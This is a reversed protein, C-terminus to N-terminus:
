SGPWLTRRRPQPDTPTADQLTYSNNQNSRWPPQGVLVHVPDSCRCALADVVAEAVNPNSCVVLVQHGQVEALVGWGDYIPGNLTTPAQAKKLPKCDM